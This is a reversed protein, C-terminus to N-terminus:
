KCSSKENEAIQENALKVLAPKNAEFLIAMLANEGEDTLELNNNLYGAKVLAQTDADVLRKFLSSVKMTLKTKVNVKSPKSIVELPEGQSGNSMYHGEVKNVVWAEGYGRIHDGGGTKRDDRMLHARRNDDDVAHVTATFTCNNYEGQVRMGVELYACIAM